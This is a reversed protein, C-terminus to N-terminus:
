FREGTGGLKKVLRDVRRLVRDEGRCCSYRALIVGQGADVNEWYLTDYGQDEDEHCSDCCDRWGPPVRYCRVWHTPRDDRAM